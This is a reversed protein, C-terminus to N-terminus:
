GRACRPMLNSLRTLGYGPSPRASRRTTSRRKSYEAGGRLAAEVIGACAACWLRRTAFALPRDGAMRASRPRSIRLPGSRRAPWTERSPGGARVPACSGLEGAMRLSGARRAACAEVLARPATPGGEVNGILTRHVPRHRSLRPTREVVSAPGPLVLPLDVRADGDDRRRPRADASGSKRGHRRCQGGSLSGPREVQAPFGEDAGCTASCLPFFVVLERGVRRRSAEVLAPTM